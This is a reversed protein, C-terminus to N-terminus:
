FSPPISFELLDIIKDAAGPQGMVTKLEASMNKLVPPERLLSVARRAVDDARVVGRIEPVIERKVRKNPHSTFRVQRDFKRIVLRKLLRGLFPVRGVQGWFGYLPVLEPKNLAVVVIMPTGLFAAEATNTGPITLILDSVQMVDHPLGPILFAELGEGTVIKGGEREARAQSPFPPLSITGRTGEIVRGSGERLSRSYLERSTFPSKSMLFQASPIEERILEAVRLFFPAMYKVHDPRSGPMLSIVPKQSGIKWLNRFEERSFRPRVGDLMLNGVVAVQEEAIGRTLLYKKTKEDIVMFKKFYRKWAVFKHTYAFAPWALKRSLLFSYFLDSGLHLIVGKSLPYLNEPAKGLFLFRLASKPGLVLSVEPIQKVVEEEKGSAYPCPPLLIIIRAEPEREKLRKVLPKVWASIEGPSSSLIFIDM